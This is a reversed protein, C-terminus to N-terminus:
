RMPLSRAARSHRATHVCIATSISPPSSMGAALPLGSADRLILHALVGACDDRHIRNTYYDSEVRSGLEGRRLKELLSHGEGEYIGSFRVICGQSGLLEVQQEAERQIRGPFREPRTPSLEDVVSGDSQGYVSSSSVWFLKRLRERPLHTLIARLGEVYTTRYSAESLSPPPLTLEDFFKRLDRISMDALEPLSKGAVKVYTAEPRLRGGGCDTCTTRGRYRALMVRNQIKYSAQELEHFFTHIGRLDQSGDWLLKREAKTLDVYPRHIPFDKKTGKKIFDQQWASSKEVGEGGDHSKFIFVVISLHAFDHVDDALFKEFSLDGDNEDVM